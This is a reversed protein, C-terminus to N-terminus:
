AQVPVRVFFRGGGSPATDVGVAFGHAVAVMQAFALGLGHGVRETVETNLRVFRRFIHPRECEPVGSGADDVCLLLGDRDAEARMAVTSGDPSHRIANELLNVFVRTMMDFDVNVTAEGFDALDQKIEIARPTGLPRVAVVAEEVLDDLRVLMRELKFAGADSRALDLMNTVMRELRHSAARGESVLRLAADGEIQQELLHLTSLVSAIPNRLDHVLYETLESQITRAQKMRRLSDQRTRTNRIQTELVALLEEEHVPEVVTANAGCRLATLRKELGEPVLGVVPLLQLPNRQVVQRSFWKADTPDGRFSVIAIDIVLEDIARLAIDPTNCDVLQYGAVELRERWATHHIEPAMVVARRDLNAAPFEGTEWIM